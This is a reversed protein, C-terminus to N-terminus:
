ASEPDPGEDGESDGDFMMTGTVPEDDEESNADPKMTGTVPDPVSAGISVEERPGAELVVSMVVAEAGAVGEFDAVLPDDM